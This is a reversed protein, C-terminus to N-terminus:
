ETGKKYMNHPYWSGNPGKAPVSYIGWHTYIGLKSSKFWEPIDHNQLSNWSEQYDNHNSIKVESNKPYVKNSRMILETGSASVAISSLGITKIFNRRSTKM